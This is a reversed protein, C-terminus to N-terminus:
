VQERQRWDKIQDIHESPHNIMTEIIRRGTKGEAIRDIPLARVAAVFHEGAQRLEMKVQEFNKDAARGAFNDNTGETDSLDVGEAAPREGRALRELAETMANEWGAIHAVIERVGWRDLWVKRAEADNLRAIADEIQQQAAHFRHILDDHEAM